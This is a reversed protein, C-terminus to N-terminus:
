LIIVLISAWATNMDWWGDSLVFPGYFFTFNLSIITLLLNSLDFCLVYIFWDCKFLNGQLM